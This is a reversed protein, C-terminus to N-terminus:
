KLAFEPSTLAKLFEVLDAEQEKSLNLPRIGGSLLEPIPDTDKVRGGNNYFQVVEELTKLSGDHLYPATLAINRLTSTKFAGIDTLDRTVAYRGLSSTKENSLVAIDAGRKKVDEVAATLEDLDKPMQQAAAGIMHFRNDTFLAQTQEIVHCSVCRGQNIFVDLGRIAAPSMATKDGGYFYRDFPSNGAVLTREFSAIAQEVEKMTIQNGTKAFAKQFLGVYEPDTRVIKLIPEHNPLGMEVPNIFPGASQAELTPERGDWFQTHLYAANIVTPANRTGRLKNIGESVPLGDAFVKGREHCTACSVEGTSSFRKDHFLKDGLKVKEPTIPNDAPVPLPPLGLPAAFAVCTVLSAAIVGVRLMRKFNRATTKLIRGGKKEPQGPTERTDESAGGGRPEKKIGGENAM